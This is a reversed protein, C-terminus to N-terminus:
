GSLAAIESQTLDLEQEFVAANHEGIDAVWERIAAQTESFLFPANTVTLAGAADIVDTLEGAYIDPMARHMASLVRDPIVTPGPIAVIERGDALSLADPRPAPADTTVSSYSTM